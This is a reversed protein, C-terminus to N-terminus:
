SRDERVGWDRAACTEGGGMATRWARAVRKGQDPRCIGAPGAKLSTQVNKLLTTGVYRRSGGEANSIGKEMNAVRQLFM